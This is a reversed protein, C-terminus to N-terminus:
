LIQGRTHVLWEQVVSEDTSAELVNRSAHMILVSVLDLLLHLICIFLPFFLYIFLNRETRQRLLLGAAAPARTCRIRGESDYDDPQQPGGGDFDMSSFALPSRLLRLTLGGAM